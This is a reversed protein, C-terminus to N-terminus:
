VDPLQDPRSAKFKRDEEEYLKKMDEESLGAMKASQFYASLLMKVLGVAETAIAANSM